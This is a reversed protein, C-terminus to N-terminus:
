DYKKNGPFHLLFPITGTSFDPNRSYVIRINVETPPLLNTHLFVTGTLAARSLTWQGRFHNESALDIILRFM